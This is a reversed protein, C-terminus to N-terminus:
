LLIENNNEEDESDNFISNFNAVNEDNTTENYNAGFIYDNMM